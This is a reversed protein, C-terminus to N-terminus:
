PSCARSEGAAPSALRCAATSPELLQERRAVDDVQGLPDGDVRFTSV